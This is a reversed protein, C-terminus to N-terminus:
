TILIAMLKDKPYVIDFLIYEFKYLILHHRGFKEQRGLFESHLKSILVCNFNLYPWVPNFKSGFRAATRILLLCTCLIYTALSIGLYLLIHLICLIAVAVVGQRWLCCQWFWRTWIRQWLCGLFRFEEGTM